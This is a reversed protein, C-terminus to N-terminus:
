RLRPPRRLTRSLHMLSAPNLDQTALRHGVDDEVAGGAAFGHALGADFQHEVVGVAGQDALVRGVRFDRDAAFHGAVALVAVEEVAGLTATSVDGINEEAGAQARAAVRDDFLAHDGLQDFGLGFVQAVKDFFRGADGLVLLAAALGFVANTAGM